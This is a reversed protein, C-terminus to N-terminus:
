GEEARDERGFPLQYAQIEILIQIVLVTLIKTTM